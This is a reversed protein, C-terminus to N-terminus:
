VSPKWLTYPNPADASHHNRRFFPDLLGPFFLCIFYFLWRVQLKVRGLCRSDRVRCWTLAWTLTNLGKRKDLHSDFNQEWTNLLIRWASNQRCSVSRLEQDFSVASSTCCRWCNMKESWQTETWRVYRQAVFVRVSQYQVHFFQVSYFFSDKCKRM